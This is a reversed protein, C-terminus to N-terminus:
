EKLNQHSSTFVISDAIVGVLGLNVRLLTSPLENGPPPTNAGLSVTTGDQLSATVSDVYVQVHGRLEMRTASSVLSPGTSKRVDLVFDDIAIDNAVLKLAPTRTGDALPVTVVSVAQLGSFSISSGGLQAAPLTFV